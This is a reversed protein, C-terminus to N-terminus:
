SKFASNVKEILDEKKPAGTVQDHVKGQQFFVVTPLYMIKEKPIGLEEAKKNLEQNDVDLSYFAIDNGVAQAVEQYYTALHNCAGCWHAHFKIVAPKGSNVLADLQEPTSIETVTIEPQAVAPEEIIEVVEVREAIEDADPTAMETIPENQMTEMMSPTQNKYYYVGAAAIVGSIILIIGWPKSQKKRTM